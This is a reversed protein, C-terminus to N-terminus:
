PAGITADTATASHTVTITRDAGPLILMPSTLSVTVTIAAGQIDATGTAGAADLYAAAATRAADPDLTITGTARLTDRDIHQAGARAAKQAIARAEGHTAILHGGDYAMGAVMVLATAIVAVFVTVSGRDSSAEIHM